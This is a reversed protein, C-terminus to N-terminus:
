MPLYSFEALVIWNNVCWTKYCFMASSLCSHLVEIHVHYISSICFRWCQIQEEKKILNRLTSQSSVYM